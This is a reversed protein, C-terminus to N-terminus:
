NERNLATAFRERGTLDKITAINAFGNDALIARVTGSQEPSHELIIAAGPRLHSPAKAALSRIADLGDDGSLLAERPEFERIERPLEDYFRRSVYPLNATILDFRREGDEIKESIPLPPPLLDGLIFEM